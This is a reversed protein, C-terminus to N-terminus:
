AFGKSVAAKSGDDLGDVFLGFLNYGDFLYLLLVGVPFLTDVEVFDLYKFFKVMGVDYPEVFDYLIVVLQIEHKLKHFFIYELQHHLPFKLM